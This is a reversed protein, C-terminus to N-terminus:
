EARGLFCIATTLGVPFGLRRICFCLSAVDNLLEGPRLDSALLAGSNYAIPARGLLVMPDM